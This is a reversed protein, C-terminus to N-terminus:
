RFAPYLPMPATEPWRKALTDLIERGFEALHSLASLADAVSIFSEWRLTVGQRMTHVGRHMEEDGDLARTLHWGTNAIAWFAMAKLMADTFTPEDAADAIGTALEARYAADMEDVVHSPIRNVCWCTPFPARGYTGDLLAHRFGGVEFDILVVRGDVIRTNDPCPDGHTYTRFAVPNGIAALAADAEERAARSLTLGLTDCADYFGPVFERFAFYPDTDPLPGLGRRAADYSDALPATVAHMRGLTRALGILGDRAAVPDDGLLLDAVGDGDGLDEFVLVGDARGAGLLRPALSADAANLMELAAWENFLGWATGEHSDPDYPAWNGPRKVVVTPAGVDGAAVRFRAVRGFGNPMARLVEAGPELRVTTGSPDSLAREVAPRVEDM